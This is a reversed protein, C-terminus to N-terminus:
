GAADVAHSYIALDEKVSPKKGVRYPWTPANYTRNPWQPASILIPQTGSQRWHSDPDIRHNTYMRSTQQSCLMVTELRIVPLAQRQSAWGDGGGRAGRGGGVGMNCHNYFVIEFVLM